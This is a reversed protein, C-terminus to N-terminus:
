QTLVAQGDEDGHLRFQDGVSASVAGLAGKIAGKVGYNCAPSSIISCIDYINYRGFHQGTQTMPHRDVEMTANEPLLSLALPVREVSMKKSVNFTHLFNKQGIVQGFRVM